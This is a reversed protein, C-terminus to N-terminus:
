VNKLRLWSRFYKRTLAVASGALTLLSNSGNTCFSSSPAAFTSKFATCAPVMTAGSDSRMSLNTGHSRRVPHSCSKAPFSIFTIAFFALFGPNSSVSSKITQCDTTRVILLHTSPALSQALTLLHSVIMHKNSLEVGLSEDPSGKLYSRSGSVNFLYAPHNPLNM